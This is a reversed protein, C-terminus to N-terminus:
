FRIPVRERRNARATRGLKYGDDVLDDGEDLRPMPLCLLVLVFPFVQTRQRTMIGFNGISSFAFVFMM